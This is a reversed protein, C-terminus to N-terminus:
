YIVYCVGNGGIFKEVSGGSLIKHTVKRDDRAYISNPIVKILSDIFMVVNKPM